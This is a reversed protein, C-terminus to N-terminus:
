RARAEEASAAQVSFAMDHIPDNKISLRVRLRVGGPRKPTVTWRLVRAPDVPLNLRKQWPREVDAGEAIVLVDVHDLGALAQLAAPSLAESGSLDSARREPGLNVCLTARQGVRLFSAQGEFWANLHVDELIPGFDDPSVGETDSGTRAPPSFDPILHLPTRTEPPAHPFPIPPRASKFGLLERVAALADDLSVPAGPRPRVLKEYGSDSTRVRLVPPKASKVLDLFRDLDDADEPEDSPLLFLTLNAKPLEEGPGPPPITVVHASPLGNRIERELWSAHGADNLRRVILIETAM